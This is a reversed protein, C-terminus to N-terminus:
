RESTGGPQRREYVRTRGDRDWAIVDYPQAPQGPQEMGPSGAPMGPVSIGVIDAPKERLLRAVVDAPVHGVVIYDGAVATHCAALQEPVGLSRNVADVATDRVVAEFGNAQLHM